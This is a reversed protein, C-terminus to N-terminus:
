TPASAKRLDAITLITRKPSAEAVLTADEMGEASWAPRTRAALEDGDRVVRGRVVNMAPSGIFGATFLNTPHKYPPVPADVQRLEV